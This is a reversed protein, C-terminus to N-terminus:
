ISSISFTLEETMDTGEISSPRGSLTTVSRCHCQTAKAKVELPWGATTPPPSDLSAEARRTPTVLRPLVAAGCCKLINSSPSSSSKARNEWIGFAKSVVMSVVKPPPPTTGGQVMRQKGYDIGPALINKHHQWATRITSTFQLSGLNLFM